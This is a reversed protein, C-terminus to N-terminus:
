NHNKLWREVAFLQEETLLTDEVLKTRFEHERAQERALRVQESYADASAKTEDYWKLYETKREETLPKRRDVIPPHM